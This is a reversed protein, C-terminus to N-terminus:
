TTEEDDPWEGCYCCDEGARYHDCHGGDNTCEDPDFTTVATV